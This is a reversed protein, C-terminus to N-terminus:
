TRSGRIPRSGSAATSRAAWARTAREINNQPLICEFRAACFDDLYSPLGVSTPRYNVMNKRTDRQYARNGSIQTDIVTHQEIVKTWTGTVSWSYRARAVDHLGRFQPDPSDYTWDVLSSELFKNGNGRVFFRSSDSHNYDVRVSSQTNHPQDPEAARYYNNTPQQTPSLFNQNPAPVMAQYLGFAPNKYTGDANM